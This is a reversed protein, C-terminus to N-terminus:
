RSELTSQINYNKYFPKRKSLANISDTASILFRSYPAEFKKKKKIKKLPAFWM